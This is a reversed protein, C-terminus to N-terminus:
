VNQRRGEPIRSFILISVSIAIAPFLASWWNGIVLDGIGRSLDYGWDAGDTASIGVGIFGLGALTLISDSGAGTLLPKIGGLSNPLLHRFFIISKPIDLAIAASFYGEQQASILNARLTRLIKTGFFLTVGAAAAAIVLWYRNQFDTPVGILLALAVLISPLAYLADSLTVIIKDAFRGGIFSLYALLLAFVVSATTGAVLVFLAAAAGDVVRVFVDQGLTTTGMPHLLNPPTGPTFLIGKHSVSTSDYPWIVLRGVTLAVLLIAMTLIGWSARLKM